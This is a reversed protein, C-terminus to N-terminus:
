ENKPDAITQHVKVSFFKIDTFSHRRYFRHGLFDMYLETSSPLWIEAKSSASTVPRYDIDQHQLRLRIKPVEEAVDSELHAVQYSDALILARGRLRVSFSNAGIQVESMSHGHDRREEFRVQWAPQGRWEALGECTMQFDKVHHPHFILVLSPTGMTAIGDPFDGGNRYEEVNLYGSPAPAISVVYNFKRIQPSGLRGSRDVTQHEVVETATFKDVNRVFEEIRKGAKSLVDPLPCTMVPSVPPMARNVHPAFWLDAKTRKGPPPAIVKAAPTEVLAEDPQWVESLPLSVPQLPVAESKSAAAAKEIEELKKQMEGAFQGQPFERLYTRMEVAANAYDQKRLLINALLAHLQPIGQNPEKEAARASKEAADLRNLNFNAVAELYSAIGLRPDLELAKGASVVGREYEKNQIALSALSLYPPIFQPDAAIAKEFARRAEVADHNMLSIKGLENWAAAFKDYKAVAKELHQTASKLRNSREDDTGRNFEKLAGAPVLLSAVGVVSGSMGAVRKLQLTGVDITGLSDPYPDRITDVLPRYGPVSVRLECGALGRSINGVGGFSSHSNMGNTGPTSPDDAASLDMNSQLGPELNFRFYGNSDTRIMQL